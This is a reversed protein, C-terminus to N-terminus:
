GRPGPWSGRARGSAEDVVEVPAAGLRGAPVAGVHGPDDGHEGAEVAQGPEVILRNQAEDTCVVRIAKWAILAPSPSMKTEPPTSHTECYVLQAPAPPASPRRGSGRTRRTAPGCRASRWSCRSRSRGARAPGAARRRGRRHALGGLVDRRQAADRALALVLPADRRLVAGLLGDGVAEELALDRGTVSASPVTTLLSSPGRAPTVRSASCPRLGTNRSCPVMVAPLQQGSLSPAAATTTM